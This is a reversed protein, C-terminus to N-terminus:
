ARTKEDIAEEGLQLPYVETVVFKYEEITVVIDLNIKWNIYNPRILKNEKLIVALPNYAM